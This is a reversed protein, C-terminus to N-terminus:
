KPETAALAATYAPPTKNEYDEKTIRVWGKGPQEGPRASIKWKGFGPHYWYGLPLEMVQEQIQRYFTGAVTGCRAAAIEQNIYNYCINASNCYGFHSKNSIALQM